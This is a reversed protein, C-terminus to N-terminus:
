LLAFLQNKIRPWEGEFNPTLINQGIAKDIEDATWWRGESVELPDPYLAPHGIAAHMFVYEREETCEFLYAGLYIPNFDTFSLEEEAERYLAEVVSEGYSIHGGVATDWYNPLLRKSAARRQLYVKGEHDIIHLHVVPHLARSGGHCWERPAQGYVLGGPEVLPLMEDPPLSPRGPNDISPRPFFPAPESPYALGAM